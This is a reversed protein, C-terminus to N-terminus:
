ANPKKTELGIARFEKFVTQNEIKTHRKIEHSGNNNASKGMSVLELHECTMGDVVKITYGLNNVDVGFRIDHGGYSPKVNPKWEHIGNDRMWFCGDTRFYPFGLREFVHRKILTCGTGCWLVKKGSKAVTSYGNRLPYDIISVDADMEILRKLGNHPTVVDEEVIWVHTVAKNDRLLTAIPINFCDPIPLGAPMRHDWILDLESLQRIATSVCDAMILGRSPILLGIVPKM